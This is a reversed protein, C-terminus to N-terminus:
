GLLTLIGAITAATAVLAATLGYEVAKAGRDSELIPALFVPKKLM